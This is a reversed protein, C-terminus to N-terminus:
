IKVTNWIPQLEPKKYNVYSLISQSINKVFYKKLYDYLLDKELETKNPCNYNKLLKICNTQTIKKLPPTSSHHLMLYKILESAKTIAKNVVTVVQKNSKNIEQKVDLIEEQVKYTSEDIITKIKSINSASASATVANLYAKRNIEWFWIWHKKHNKWMFINSHEFLFGKPSKKNKECLNTYSLKKVCGLFM